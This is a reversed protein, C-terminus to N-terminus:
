EFASDLITIDYGPHRKKLYALISTESKADPNALQMTSSSLRTRTRSGNKEYIYEVSFRKAM